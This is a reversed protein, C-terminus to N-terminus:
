EVLAWVFMMVFPAAVMSGVGFGIWDFLIYGISPPGVIMGGIIVMGVAKGVTNVVKKSIAHSESYTTNDKEKNEVKELVYESAVSTKTDAVLYDKSNGVITRRGIGLKGVNVIPKSFDIEKHKSLRSQRADSLITSSM